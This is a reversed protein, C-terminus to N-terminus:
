SITHVLSDPETGCRTGFVASPTARPTISSLLPAPTQKVGCLQSSSCTSALAAHMAQATNREFSNARIFVNTATDYFFFAGGGWGGQWALHADFTM